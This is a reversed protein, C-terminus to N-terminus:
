FYFKKQSKSIKDLIKFILAGRMSWEISYMVRYVFVDPRSLRGFKHLIVMSKILILIKSFAKEVLIAFLYYVHIKFYKNKYMVIGHVFIYKLAAYNM